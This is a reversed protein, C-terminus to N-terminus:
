RRTMQRRRKTALCSGPRGSIGTGETEEKRKEKEERRRNRVSSYRSGVGEATECCLM